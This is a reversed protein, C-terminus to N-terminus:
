HCIIKTEKTQSHRQKRKNRFESKNSISNVLQCNKKKGRSFHAVEWVEETKPSFNVM